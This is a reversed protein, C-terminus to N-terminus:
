DMWYTLLTKRNVNRHISEDTYFSDNKFHTSSIEEIVCGTPSVFQHRVGPEVVIVAGPHHVETQGNLTLHLEGYLVHFTEEKQNHYQEPHVQNPLSVLIKKCYSRNVVTIMTLGFENFKEIGYHHSIELDVGGPITIQSKGLLEKVQHAINLVDGRSDTKSVNGPKFAEDKQLPKLAKFNVYKSCDNATYQGEEPPFAFYFDAATINEGPEIQRKAFVGRRLSLLSSTEAENTPLREHGVGCVTFAYRAAELWAQVQMPSASYANLAHHDTQVGVHKEFLNVGKAIAMKVIDTNAPNEHTSFGIRVTPYRKKLLDIQSIHLKEDATPYEGVCHLIAFNKNRHTFFSVVNDIQELNAGATSAIIPLDNQVVRELLPWDTFSCSAIKVIDFNQEEITGVSANDFPTCMVKFGNLRMEQILVEFDQRSLRTESFRKIYKLDNRDKMAPHVFTDLDRYQLKFAFNFEPFHRCVSGFQRIVEIGHAVDGMHNNALELVFLNNPIDKKMM